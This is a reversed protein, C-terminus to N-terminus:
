TPQHELVIERVHGSASPPPDDRHRQFRRRAFRVLGGVVLLAIILYPVALGISRRDDAGVDADSGDSRIAELDVETFAAVTAAVDDITETFEVSEGPLLEPLEHLPGSRRMLGLPGGITVQHTGALRVNGRNEVRYTVEASGGLPNATASYHTGLDAVALEPNLEGDVRIYVRTGTQRDLTVIRGDPSTGRADNSALIAGAHDGPRADLPVSVVIDFTAADGAPIELKDVPLKVWAGVGTQDVDPPLPTFAGDDNNQADVPFVEFELPVNSFNFLTVRDTVLTGPAMEYSLNARDGSQSGDGAGAPTLAWSHVIGLDSDEPIPEGPTAGSGGDPVEQAAAPALAALAVALFLAIRVGRGSAARILSM